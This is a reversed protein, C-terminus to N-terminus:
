HKKANVININRTFNLTCDKLRALDEVFTPTSYKETLVKFQQRDLRRVAYNESSRKFHTFLAQQNNWLGNVVQLSSAVWCITFVRGIKKVPM